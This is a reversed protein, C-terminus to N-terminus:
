KTYVKYRYPAIVQEKTVTIAGGGFIRQMALYEQDIEFEVKEDSFNIISLVMRDGKVRKFALIKDDATTKVWELTGGFDGNWLAPNRTKGNFLATYISSFKYGGSWDIPDKEFFKLRKTNNAEQGSYVLPMGYTTAAFIFWAEQAEGFFEEATGNWSNEDHNTIINMKYYGEPYRAFDRAYMDKIAQLDEEGAAVKRMLHMLEWSYTMDFADVHLETEEGEALMFVPKIEDLQQRIGNWFDTPVMGAVDCRYGDIDFEAVWYKLADTMAARLENNSYDLDIVDEWDEVPPMFEGAENKTYFEPNTETWVHDWATHNAVWDILVKMGNDHATKVLNRFDEETGFAPNIAKYDKVAYYSGETGKRNKEGIPHIPMLWLIDIGMKKLRPIDKAFANFTGEQTHQRINVEYIVADKSWEPHKVNSAIKAVEEVPEKKESGCSFLFLSLLGLALYNKM